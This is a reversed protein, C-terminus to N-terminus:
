EEDLLKAPPPEFVCVSGSAACKRCSKSNFDDPVCRNKGKRCSACRKSDSRGLLSSPDILTPSPTQSSFPFPVTRVSKSWTKRRRRRTRSFHIRNSTGRTLKVNFIAAQPTLPTTHSPTTTHPTTPISATRLTDQILTDDVVGVSRDQGVPFLSLSLLLLSLSNTRRPEGTWIWLGYSSKLVSVLILQLMKNIM